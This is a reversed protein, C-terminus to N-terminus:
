KATPKPELLTLKNGYPCFPVIAMINLSSLILAFPQIYKTLLYINIYM